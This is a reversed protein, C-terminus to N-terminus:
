EDTVGFEESVIALMRAFTFRRDRLDSVGALVKKATVAVEELRVFPACSEVIELPQPIGIMQWQHQNEDAYIRGFLQWTIGDRDSYVGPETPLVVAPKAPVFLSWEHRKITLYEALTAVDIEIGWPPNCERGLRYIVKGTLMGGNRKVRVQDGVKVTSWDEQVIWDSM